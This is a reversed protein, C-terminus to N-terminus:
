EVIQEEIGEAAAKIEQLEREIYDNVIMKCKVNVNNFYIEKLM